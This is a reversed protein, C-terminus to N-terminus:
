NLIITILYFLDIIIIGSLSVFILLGSILLKNIPKTQLINTQFIVQWKIYNTLSKFYITYTISLYYIVMFVSATILIFAQLFYQGNILNVILIWKPIFGSLPPIGGISLFILALSIPVISNLIFLNNLNIIFLNKEKSFLLLILLITTSNLFYVILFLIIPQHFGLLNFKLILIILGLNSINSYAILRKVKTQNLAGIFGFILSVAALVEIFYNINFLRILIIILSIKPILSFIAFLPWSSGEFVDVIWLHFPWSGLKVLVSISILLIGTSNNNSFFLYSFYPNDIFLNLYGTLFIISSLISIIFYKLGAEIKSLNKETNALLIIFSFSQIEVGLYVVFLDNSSTILFFGVIIFLSLLIKEWNVTKWDWIIILLFTFVCCLVLQHSTNGNVFFTLYTLSLLFFIFLNTNKNTMISFFHLSHIQVM